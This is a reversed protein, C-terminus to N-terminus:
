PVYRFGACDSATEREKVVYGAARHFRAAYLFTWPPRKLCVREGAGFQQILARDTRADVLTSFRIGGPHIYAARTLVVVWLFGCGAAISPLLGRGESWLVLNLGVLVLMWYLYYRLEHSQPSLAAVISASGFVLAAIRTRKSRKRWWAFGLMALQAMVYPGGFGGMRYAPSDLPAWQDVSWRRETLPGLGLELISHLWRLARPANALAMPSSSYVEEPGPLEFGAWALRVPYVPNHYLVANKLPWIYVLPLALILIAVWRWGMRRVRPLLAALGLTVLPLLQLRMQVAVGAAILALALERPAPTRDTSYLHFIELVLIAAGVNAPLDVYSSTAHIQVLPIALFAVSALPWPVTFRRRLYVVLLLLGLWAVLNGAEPMGTVKWLLGQLMEGLLPFGAFCAQNTAHFLYESAPVIRWIRAAFPLHYYWVDWAQSVDHLATVLLSGLLAGGGLELTLTGWRRHRKPTDM